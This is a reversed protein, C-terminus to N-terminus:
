FTLPETLCAFPLFFSDQKAANSEKRSWNEQECGIVGRKEAPKGGGPGPFCFPIGGAGGSVWGWGKQWGPHGVASRGAFLVRDASDVGEGEVRANVKKKREVFAM